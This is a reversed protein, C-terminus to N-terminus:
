VLGEQHSNGKGSDPATKRMINQWSKVDINIEKELALLQSNLKQMETIAPNLKEYKQKGNKVTVTPDGSKVSEDLKKFLTTLRLYRKVKQQVLNDDPDTNKELYIQLGSKAM